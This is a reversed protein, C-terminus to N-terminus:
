RRNLAQLYSTASFGTITKGNIVAFPVSGNGGLTRARRAAAQDKEIDYTKFPIGNARFFAIAKKCYPCWDTIYLDVKNVLARPKDNVEPGGGAKNPAASQPSPFKVTSVPADDLNMREANRGKPPPTDSFHVSGNEDVWKYVDAHAPGAFVLLAALSPWVLAKTRMKGMVM